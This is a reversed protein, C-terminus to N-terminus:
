SQAIGLSSVEAAKDWCQFKSLNIENVDVLMQPQSAANYSQGLQGKPSHSVVKSAGSSKSEQKSAMNM